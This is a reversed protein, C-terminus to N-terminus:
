KSDQLKVSNTGILKKTSNEANETHLMINDACLTWKIGKKGTQIGKIEKEQSHWANHQPALVRRYTSSKKPIGAIKLM